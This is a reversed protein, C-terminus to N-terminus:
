GAATHRSGYLATGIKTSPVSRIAQFGTTRPLGADKRAKFEGYVLAMLELGYPGMMRSTYPWSQWKPRIPWLCWTCSKVGCNEWGGPSLSGYDALRTKWHILCKSGKSNTWPYM